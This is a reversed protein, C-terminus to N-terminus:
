AVVVKCRTMVTQKTGRYESHEKVRGTLCVKQGKHINNILDAKETIWVLTNGNVNFKYVVKVVEGDRSYVSYTSFTFYDEFIADTSVREGVNFMYESVKESAKAQERRKKDMARRYTPILSTLMGANMNTAMTDEYRCLTRLNFLYSAETVEEDTLNKCWEFASYALDIQDKTIDKAGLSIFDEPKQIEDERRDCYWCIYENQCANVLNEVYHSTPFENCVRADQGSVFGQKCILYSAAIVITLSTINHFIDLDGIESKRPLDEDNFYCKTECDNISLHALDDYVSCWESCMAGDLGKTFEKCCTAGVVKVEHTEENQLVVVSKRKRHTHCHDCHSMDVDVYKQCLSADAFYTQRVGSKINVTGLVAWGNIHYKLEINVKRCAIVRTEKVERHEEKLYCHVMCRQPYLQGIEMIYDVGAKKCKNAITHLKKSLSEFKFDPVIFEAM